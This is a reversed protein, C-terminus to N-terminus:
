ITLLPSSRTIRSSKQPAIQQFIQYVEEVSAADSDSSREKERAMKRAGPIRSSIRSRTNIADPDTDTDADADADADHERERKQGKGAVTLDKCDFAGSFSQHASSTVVQSRPQPASASGFHPSLKLSTSFNQPDIILIDEDTGHSKRAAEVQEPYLVCYDAFM